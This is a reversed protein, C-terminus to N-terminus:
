PQPLSACRADFNCGVLQEVSGRGPKTALFFGIGRAYYKHELGSPSLPSFEATVVCDGASCLLQALAAPVLQDLTADHGFSYSTSLVTAADEADGPAWEQRSTAGVRPTGPFLLGPKAGDRGAKFSGDISTLEPVLPADGPFTEYEATNEGCYVVDGNKRQAFWDATVEIPIGGDSAVDSVVICQVGDILKVQDLVEIEDTETGGNSVSWHNGVAIPAYPNPNTPSRPDDYNVPDFDPEYRAEGIRACLDERADSQEDCLLRAESAAEAADAVCAAREAANSLNLCITRATFQDDRAGFLCGQEQLDASDSCFNTSPRRQAEVVPAPKQKKKALAADAPLFILLAAACVLSGRVLAGFPRSEIGIM